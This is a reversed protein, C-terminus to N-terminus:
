IKNCFAVLKGWPDRGWHIAGRPKRTNELVGDKM